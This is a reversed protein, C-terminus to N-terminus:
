SQVEMPEARDFQGAQRVDGREIHNFSKQLIDPVPLSGDSLLENIYRLVVKHEEPHENYYKIREQTKRLQSDIDVKEMKGILDDYRQHYREYRTRICSLTYPSSGKDGVMKLDIWSELVALYYRKVRDDASKPPPKLVESKFLEGLRERDQSRLVARKKNAMAVALRRKDDTVADKLIQQINGRKASPTNNGIASNKQPKAVMSEDHAM